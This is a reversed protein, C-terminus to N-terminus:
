LERDEQNGYDNIKLSDKFRVRMAKGGSGVIQIFKPRNTPMHWEQHLRLVFTHCKQSIQLNEWFYKTTESFSEIKALTFGFILM